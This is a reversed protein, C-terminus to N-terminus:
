IDSTYTAFLRGPEDSQRFVQVDGQTIGCDYIGAVEARAPRSIDVIHLGNRYSGAFAYTGGATRGFEIDTGFNPTTGNRAEYPINKVFSMNASHEDAAVAPAAAALSLAFAAAAASRRM